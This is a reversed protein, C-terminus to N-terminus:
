HNAQRAATRAFLRVVADDYNLLVTRAVAARHFHHASIIRAGIGGAHFQLALANRIPGALTRLQRVAYPLQHVLGGAGWSRSSDFSLTRLLRGIDPAAEAMVSLATFM